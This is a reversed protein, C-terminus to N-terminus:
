NKFSNLNDWDDDDDALTNQPYFLSPNANSPNKRFDILTKLENVPILNVLARNFTSVSVPSNFQKVPVNNNGFKKNSEGKRQAIQNLTTLDKYHEDDAIKPLKGKSIMVCRNFLHLTDAYKPDFFLNNWLIPNQYIALIMQYFSQEDGFIAFKAKSLDKTNRIMSVYGPELYWSPLPIGKHTIKELVNGCLKNISDMDKDVLNFFQPKDNENGNIVSSYLKVLDEDTYANSPIKKYMDLMEQETYGIKDKGKFRTPGLIESLLATKLQSETLIIHRKM